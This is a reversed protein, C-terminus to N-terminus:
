AEAFCVADANDDSGVTCHISHIDIAILGGASPFGSSDHHDALCVQQLDSLSAEAQDASTRLEAMEANASSLLGTLEQKEQQLASISQAAAEQSTTAEQLEHM